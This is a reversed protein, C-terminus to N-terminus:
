NRCSHRSINVVQKKDTSTRETLTLFCTKFKIKSEVKPSYFFNDSDFLEEQYYYLGEVREINKLNECDMLNPSREKSYDYLCICAGSCKRQTFEGREDSGSPSFKYKKDSFGVLAYDNSPFKIFTKVEWNEGEQANILSVLEQLVNEATAADKASANILSSLFSLLAVQICM